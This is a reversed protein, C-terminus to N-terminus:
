LALRGAAGLQSDLRQTGAGLLISARGWRGVRM